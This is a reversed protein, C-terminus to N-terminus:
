RRRHKGEIAFQKLINTSVQYPCVKFAELICSIQSLGSCPFGAKPLVLHINAKRKKV